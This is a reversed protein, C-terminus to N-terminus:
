GYRITEIPDLKAARRAPVVASLVGTVTAIAVTRLCLEATLAFPFAATGDPNRALSQFFLSLGVGMLLGILSGVLGVLAGEVLFVGMVRRASTGMAKLIGIERGKQVVSVVLVSSIGLAVAVVVFVQILNSSSRQASLGLLLQQNTRMWSEAVLGTRGAIVDAAENATFPEALRLELSTVGGELELLTQATRLPVLVWRQNLDRNGLDFLGRVTLVEAVGSGATLRFRDGVAIGLDAALQTGILAEAGALAPQGAVMREALRFAPGFTELEVGRLAVSRSATGRGALAAGSVLPTSSTVGPLGAVTSRVQQWRVISRARQAPRVTRSAIAEGEGAEQLARPEEEPMRVVVHPQTGLTRELLNNQLGDILATLFVIVGVGVSVGALILVSQARGERLFRLAVGWEFPLSM